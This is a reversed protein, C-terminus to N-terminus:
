PRRTWRRAAGSRLRAPRSGAPTIMPATSDVPAPRADAGRQDGQQAIRVAALGRQEVAQGARALLDGVVGADGDFALFAAEGRRGAAGEAHEVQRAGVAQGGGRGVFRDRAVHHGAQAVALLRGVGDDADDVGGVQAQVQAQHEFDLAEAQRHHQRQVHDVDGFLAADGDVGRLSDVSFEAHRHDFGHGHLGAAFLRQQSASSRMGRRRRVDAALGSDAMSATDTSSVWRSTRRM